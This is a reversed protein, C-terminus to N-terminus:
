CRGKDICHRRIQPQWPDPSRGQLREIETRQRMRPFPRAEDVNELELRTLEEDIEKEVALIDDQRGHAILWDRIPQRLRKKTTFVLNDFPIDHRRCADKDARDIAAYDVHTDLFTGDLDFGVAKIGEFM